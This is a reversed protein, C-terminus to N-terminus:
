NWSFLQYYKQWHYFELKFYFTFNQFSSDTLTLKVDEWYKCVKGILDATINTFTFNQYQTIFHTLM